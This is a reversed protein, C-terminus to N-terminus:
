FKESLLTRAPEIGARPVLKHSLEVTLASHKYWEPQPNSEWECLM